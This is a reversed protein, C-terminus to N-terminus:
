VQLTYLCLTLADFPIIKGALLKCWLPTMIFAFLTSTLTVTVALAVNARALFCIVNSATGSPCSAVLALGVKFEPGLGLLEGVLWGSIPMITYHAIFGIAMAGPMKFIRRFDEMTLTFGMSLMVLTLAGRVWAGHFWSLWEPRCLGVAALGLVWVAYYDTLRSLLTSSRAHM